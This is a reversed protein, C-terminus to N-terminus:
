PVTFISKQFASTSTDTTLNMIKLGKSKGTVLETKSTLKFQRLHPTFIIDAGSLLAPELGNEKGM